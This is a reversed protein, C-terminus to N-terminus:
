REPAWPLVEGDRILQGHHQPDVPDLALDLLAVAAQAPTPATSVDWWLASTPTNMMGPCVAALLIGREADQSRPM